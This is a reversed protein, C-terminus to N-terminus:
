KIEELINIATIATNKWTWMKSDKLAYASKEKIIKKDEYAFRMVTKLDEVSPTAWQIGEYQLDGEVNSLKSAILWGNEDTVYDTQGGFNTQITPLGCGMAELGCLNFGDARQACVYVDAQNYLKNMDPQSLGSANIKIMPRDKPLNLKNLEEPVIEPNIYSPNLKLILEVPEDKGFEECFAKLVYAVGGRDEWGGRWGKNSIFTFKDKKEKAIPKFVSLDVGHPVVKIKGAITNMDFIRLRKNKHEEALTNMIAQVVHESPVWIQTVDKTNLYEVWFRPIHSGEWVLYGIFNKPNDALATRWNPPTSIMISTMEKSPSIKLGALEADNVIGEWGQPMPSDLRTDPNIEYLANYLQRTHSSYGDIGFINGILNLKM